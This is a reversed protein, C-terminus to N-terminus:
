RRGTKANYDDLAEILGVWNDTVHKMGRLTRLYNEPVENLKKNAHAGRPFRYDTWPKKAPARTGQNRGGREGRSRAQVPEDNALARTGQDRGGRSPAQVPEDNAPARTGQSRPGRPVANPEENATARTAQTRGDRSPAQVPDGNAPASTGHGRPGRPFAVPEDYRTDYRTGLNRKPQLPQGRAEAAARRAQGPTSGTPLMGPRHYDFAEKVGPHKRTISGNGAISRLYEAPIEAFTKGRHVGWDFVYDRATTNAGTSTATSASPHRSTSTSAPSIYSSSNSHSAEIHAPTTDLITDSRFSLSSYQPLGVVAPQPPAVDLPVRDHQPAFRVSTPRILPFGAGHLRRYIAIAQGIPYMVVARAARTRNGQEVQVNITMGRSDQMDSDSDEDDLDSESDSIEGDEFSDEEDIDIPDHRSGGGNLVNFNNGTSGFSIFDQNAAIGDGSRQNRSPM